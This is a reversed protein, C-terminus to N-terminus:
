VQAGGKRKNKIKIYERLARVGYVVAMSLLRGLTLTIDLRASILTKEENFDCGVHINQKKIVFFRHLQPDLGAVAACARGYNVALDCPDDGALVVNLELREVRLKQRLSNLFDGALTVFPIFDKISGGKPEPSPSATTQPKDAPAEEPETHPATVEVAKDAPHKKKSAKSRKKRPFLTWKIPGLILRVLAGKENYAASIGLPIIALLVVVGLTVLWGM